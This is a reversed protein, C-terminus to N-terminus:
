SGVPAELELLAQVSVFHGREHPVIVDRGVELFETEVLRFIVRAEPVTFIDHEDLIHVITSDRRWILSDNVFKDFVWRPRILFTRSAAPIVSQLGLEVGAAIAGRPASLFPSDM